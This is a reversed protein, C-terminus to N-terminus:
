DDRRVTGTEQVSKNPHPPLPFENLKNKLDLYLDNLWDPHRNEPTLNRRRFDVPSVVIMVNDKGSVAALIFLEEAAQNGMALCGISSTTGHIMIDSGLNSRGNEQGRKRDFENPYNLRISLHFRSNANLFECRYIGEPVQMDGERLKPGLKGSMGLIPYTHIWHWPEEPNSRAHVELKEESKFALYALEFPPYHVNAIAFKPKLIAEVNAGHMQLREEVTYGGRLKAWVFSAAAFGDETKLLAFGIGTFILVLGFAIYILKRM